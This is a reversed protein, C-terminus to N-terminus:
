PPTSTSTAWSTAWALHRAGTNFGGRAPQRRLRPGPQRHRRRLRARGPGRLPRRGARGPREPRDLEPLGPEHHQRVAADAPQPLGVPHRDRAHLQPEHGRHPGRDGGAAHGPRPRRHPGQGERHVAPPRHHDHHQHAHRAHHQRAALPAVKKVTPELESAKAYSLPKRYAVSTARWRRRRRGAQPPGTEERQLDGLAQRHPHRQGGPHLGPRQDQPDPRAGPGLAGRQAEADGQRQRGPQGRRELGSIDAFLRFIDQLDGDKFDLSIPHARTSKKAPRGAATPQADPVQARPALQPEPLPPMPCSASRSRPPPLIQAGPRWSPRSRAGPARLAALPAPGAGRGRRLRDERRRRRRRDPLPGRASLDLVLRAVKPSTASFQALARGQAGTAPQGRVQRTPRPERRGQLGGGPPGPQRPLLGPVAPARRGQRHGALHGEETEASVALIPRARRAPRSRPRLRPGPSRGRGGRRPAAPRPRPSPPQAPPRAQPASPADAVASTPPHPRPKAGRGRRRAPREFVLNLEKDKSYIQYPVLSALRVELRALSRGDARAMTTVRM